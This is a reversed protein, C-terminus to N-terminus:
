RSYEKYNVYAPTYFGWRGAEQKRGAFIMTITGPYLDTIMHALNQPMKHWSMPLWRRKHYHGDTLGVGPEIPYLREEYGGRLIFSWFAFPHDHPDRDKDSLYIWHIYWAFWPTQLVRLRRLYVRNPDNADEIDAWKLFAWSIGGVYPYKVPVYPETM